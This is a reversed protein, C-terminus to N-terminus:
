FGEDLVRFRAFPGGLSEQALDGIFGDKFMAYLYGNSNSYQTGTYIGSCKVTRHHEGTFLNTLVSTWEVRQGINAETLLVGNTITDVVHFMM